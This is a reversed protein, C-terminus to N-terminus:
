GINYFFEERIIKGDRVTYVGLERIPERRKSERNTADIDFIVGFRDPGHFFPGEVNASHVEFASNWWEHKGKIADVGRMEAEGGEQMPAAEVSVANADYLEDLGQMERGERCNAVLKNATEMLKPDFM